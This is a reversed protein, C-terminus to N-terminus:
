KGKVTPLNNSEAMDSYMGVNPDTEVEFAM